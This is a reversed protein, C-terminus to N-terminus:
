AALQNALPKLISEEFKEDKFHKSLEKFDELVRSSIELNSEKLFKIVLPIFIEKTKEPSFYPFVKVFNRAFENKVFDIKSESLKLM